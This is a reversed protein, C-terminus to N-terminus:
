TLEIGKGHIYMLSIHPITPFNNNNVFICIDMIWMYTINNNNNCTQILM